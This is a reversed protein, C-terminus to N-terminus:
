RYGVRKALNDSYRKWATAFSSADKNSMDAAPWMLIHRSIPWIQQLRSLARPATRWDWGQTITPFPCNLTAVYLKGVKFATAQTNPLRDEATVANPLKKADLIPATTRVWQRRRWPVPCRGLWIRWTEPPATRNNMLWNREAQPVTIREPNRARYEGTMAAMAVWASIAIQGADTLVTKEGDLLPVLFPKAQQQLQSMWAGNCDRCVIPVQSNLPDGARIRIIPADYEGPRPVRIDAFQHKNTTPAVYDQIWEGWIHESTMKAPKQCFVCHREYNTM